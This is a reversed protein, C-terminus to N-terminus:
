GSTDTQIYLVNRLSRETSIAEYTMIMSSEQGRAAGQRAAEGGHRLHGQRRGQLGQVRDGGGRRIRPEQEGGAHLGVDRPLDGRPHGQQRRARFATFISKNSKKSHIHVTCALTVM